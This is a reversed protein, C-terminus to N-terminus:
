LAAGVIVMSRGRTKHATRAFERAVRIVDAAKVGTIPEQWAPTYPLDQDFGHACNPDGLGNDVGYNALLLDYVTAVLVEGGDALLLRRAPVRRLLVDGHDTHHFYNHEHAKGGFYPFAVEAIESHNGKLSLQLDIAEGSGSRQELNWKGQQGWRYGIA